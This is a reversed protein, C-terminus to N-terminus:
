LSVNIAFTSNNRREQLASEDDRMSRKLYELSNKPDVTITTNGKYVISETSIGTM